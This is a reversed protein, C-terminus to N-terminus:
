DEHNTVAETKDMLKKAWIEVGMGLVQGYLAAHRRRREESSATLAAYIERAVAATDWPNILVAEGMAAATGSFESVVLTGHRERQCVAYEFATASIGERVSTVLAADSHRLLAFYEDRTQPPPSIQIPTHSLSGYTANISSVLVSVDAAFDSEDTGDVALMAESTIQLLVVKDRWEPHDHLFKEYAQLKKDLGSLSHMPDHGLLIKKGANSRALAECQRDVSPTFARNLIKSIDVGTPLHMLQVRRGDADVHDESTTSKLIRACSNVFHQSYIEAQFVVLDAGLVGELIDKRHCLCRIFESTPFPTQLIFVIKAHPLRQRVMQPVLMLYYDHVLVVDGPTYTECIKDAFALNATYYDSWRVDEQGGGVPERQKYHFLPFLDNEAYKRWTSQNKLTIGDDCVQDDHYLWVPIITSESCECLEKELSKQDETSLILDEECPSEKREQVKENSPIAPSSDKPTSSESTASSSIEGTWAIVKHKWPTNDSSLHALCDLHASPYFGHNM